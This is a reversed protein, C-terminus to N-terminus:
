YDCCAEIVVVDPDLRDVADTVQRNWRAQDTLLGEGPNIVLHVAVRHSGLETLLSAAADRILSDGVVLVTGAPPTRTEQAPGSPLARPPVADCAGAVLVAVLVLAALLWTRGKGGGM